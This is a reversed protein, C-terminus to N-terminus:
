RSIERVMWSGDRYQLAFMSRHGTVPDSTRVVEGAATLVTIPQQSVNAAVAFLESDMSGSKLIEDIQLEYNEFKNGESKADDINEVLPKCFECSQDFLTRVHKTDTTAYAFNLADIFYRVTAIAGEETEESM